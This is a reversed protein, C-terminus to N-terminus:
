LNLKIKYGAGYSNEIFFDDTEIKKYIKTKLRSILQVINNGDKNNDEELIYYAIDCAKLYQNKNNCLYKVILRENNTLKIYKNNYLLEEKNKDWTFNDALSLLTDKKYKQSINGMVEDLEKKSIPKVLYAFLQLNVAQLLIDQDSHATLMIIDINKDNERIIQAVQLGNIYPISIDLIAIDPKYKKYSEIASKGDTAVIVHSFYGELIETFNERLIINDEVYLVSLNNRM